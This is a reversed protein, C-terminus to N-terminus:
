ERIWVTFFVSLFFFLLPKPLIQAHLGLSYGIWDVRHLSTLAYRLGLLRVKVITYKVHELTLNWNTHTFLAGSTSSYYITAKKLNLLNPWAICKNGLVAWGMCFSHTVIFGVTVPYHSWDLSIHTFTSHFYTYCRHSVLTFISHPNLPSQTLISNCNLLSQTPISHPNLSSQTAISYPNLPPNLTGSTFWEGCPRMDQSSSYLCPQSELIM